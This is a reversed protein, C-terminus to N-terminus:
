EIGDGWKNYFSIAENIDTFMYSYTYGGDPPNIGILAVGLSIKNEEGWKIIIDMSENEFIATSVCIMNPDLNDVKSLLSSM